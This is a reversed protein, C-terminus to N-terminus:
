RASTGSGASRISVSGGRLFEILVRAEGKPSGSLLEVAATALEPAPAKGAAARSILALTHEEGFKEDHLPVVSDSVRTLGANLCTALETADRPVLQRGDPRFYEFRDPGAGRTAERAV